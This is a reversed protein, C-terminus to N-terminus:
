GVGPRGLTNPHVDVTLLYAELLKRAGGFPALEPDSEQRWIAIVQPEAFVGGAAFAVTGEDFSVLVAPHCDRTEICLLATRDGLGECPSLGESECYRKAWNIVPDYTTWGDPALGYEDSSITIFEFWDTPSPFPTVEAAATTSTSPTASSTTPPSMTVDATPAPATCGSLLLVVFVSVAVAGRARAVPM